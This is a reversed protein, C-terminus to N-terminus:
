VLGEIKFVREANKLLTTAVEDESIGRLEAIKEVVHRVYVPENRKGRHPVPAVYPADTESLLMSLPAGKVVDDYDNTFTIVGTLSTSFGISWFREAIALTGVFFHINGSLSLHEKKYSELYSLIDEYADMSGQSPRCHIMLPLDNATAFAVQSTFVRWQREKEKVVDVDPLIRYFDLGCEGIAVVKPNKILSAYQESSFDEHPTDNPHLGISAWLHEYKTALLVAEESSVKDVGVVIGAVGEEAM